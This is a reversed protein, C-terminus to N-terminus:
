CSAVAFEATARVDYPVDKPLFIPRKKQVPKAKKIFLDWYREPAREIGAFPEKGYKVDLKIQGSIIKVISEMAKKETTGQAAIDFELCQAVYGKNEKFVVVSLVM